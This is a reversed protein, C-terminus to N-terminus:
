CCCCCLPISSWYPAYICIRLWASQSAIFSLIALSLNPNTTFEPPWPPSSSIIIHIPIPVTTYSTSTAPPIRGPKRERWAYINCLELIIANVVMMNTILSSRADIHRSRYKTCWSATPIVVTSRLDRPTEASSIITGTAEILVQAVSCASLKMAPM